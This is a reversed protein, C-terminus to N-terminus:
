NSPTPTTQFQGLDFIFPSNAPLGLVQVQDSLNQIYQYELLAPNDALVEAVLQLAQAEAEAEILRANAVGQARAETQQAEQEVSQVRFEQERIQVEAIQADEIAQAYQETFNVDRVLIDVVEFGEAQLAPIVVTEIQRDITSRERYISEIEFLSVADRIVSRLLPRILEDQYRKNPWNVHVTNIAEPNIRYIVTVDLFVEQGGSTRASVADDGIMNGENNTASMTYTQRSTDYRKYATTIPNILALGPGRPEGLKGSIRNFVVLRENPGVSVVSIGLVFLLLGIVVSGIALPMLGRQRTQVGILALVFAGILIFIGVLTLFLNM